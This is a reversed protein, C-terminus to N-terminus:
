LPWFTRKPSNPLIMVTINITLKSGNATNQPIVSLSVFSLIRASVSPNIACVAWPSPFWTSSQILLLTEMKRKAAFSGSIMEM